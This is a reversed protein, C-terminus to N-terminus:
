PTEDIVQGDVNMLIPPPGDLQALLELLGGDTLWQFSTEWDASAYSQFADPLTSHRVVADARTYVSAFSAPKSDTISPASSTPNSANTQSSAPRDATLDATQTPAHPSAPWALWLLLALFCALAGAGCRALPFSTNHSTEANSVTVATRAARALQAPLRPHRPGLLDGLLARHSSSSRPSM